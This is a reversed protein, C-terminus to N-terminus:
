DFSFKIFEDLSLEEPKQPDVIAFLSRLTEQSININYKQLMESVENVDLTGLLLRYVNTTLIRVQGM